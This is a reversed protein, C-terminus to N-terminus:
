ESQQSRTTLLALVKSIYYLSHTGLGTLTIAVLNCSSVLHRKTSNLMDCKNYKPGYCILWIGLLAMRVVM